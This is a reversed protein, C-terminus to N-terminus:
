AELVAPAITSAAAPFADAPIDRFYSEAFTRPAGDEGILRAFKQGEYTAERFGRPALSDGVSFLQDVKGQLDVALSCVPTRMTVLIVSSIGDIVREAGSVVDFLTVADAGIDKIYTGGSFAINLAKLRPVIMALEFTHQLHEAPRQWRSVLEVRAGSQALLEAVGAGTNLGEDDLVVVHGQPRAGGSLVAEPSLVFEREAGVISHPRFGSTGDAVYKSGTAVVVAHPEEALIIDATAPSGTRVDVGLAGLETAYWAPTTAFIERDPV